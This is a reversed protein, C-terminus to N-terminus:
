GLMDEAPASAAIDGMALDSLGALAGLAILEYTLDTLRVTIVPIPRGRGVFGLGAGEVQVVLNAAQVTPAIAQIETLIYNLILGNCVGPASPTCTFVWDEAGAVASCSTGAVANTTVGCDPLTAEPILERTTAIRLARTVAFEALQRQWMIVSFEIIAFTLLALLPLLVAFEAVATGKNNSGFERMHRLFKM